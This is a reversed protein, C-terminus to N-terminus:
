SHSNSSVGGLTGFLRRYVKPMAEPLDEAILGPGFEAAAEGHLWVAAAAAEAGSAAAAKRARELKSLADEDVGKFLRAFEGEHPTLVTTPSREGIAATLVEPEDAFSTLADADLVVAGHAALAALVLDRTDKGVGAGPGLIVANRTPSFRQM